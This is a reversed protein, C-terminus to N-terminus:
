WGSPARSDRQIGHSKEFEASFKQMALTIKAPQELATAIMQETLEPKVRILEMAALVMALHNNIDHRMNGLEQNLAAVQAATLTVPQEPLVM